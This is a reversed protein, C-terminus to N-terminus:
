GEPLSAGLMSQVTQDRAEPTLLEGGSLRQSVEGIIEQRVLPIQSLGDLLGILDGTPDFSSAAAEPTTADSAKATTRSANSSNLGVISQNISPGDIRM